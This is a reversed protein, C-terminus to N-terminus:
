NTNKNFKHNLSNIFKKDENRYYQYMKKGESIKEERIEKVDLLDIAQALSKANFEDFYIAGNKSFKSFSSPYLIPKKLYWAEFLPINAPGFISPFVIAFCNTYLFKMASLNLEEYFHFTNNLNNKNVLNKISKLYGRDNGSFVIKINKNTINKFAEIILKHNKHFLYNSPYFIFKKNKLESIEDINQAILNKSIDFYKILINEKQRNYYTHLKTKTDESEVVTFYLKKIENKLFDERRKFEKSKSYEKLNPYDLHCLDLITVVLPLKNILRSRPFFHPVYLLSCKKNLLYQEFKSVLFKSIPFYKAVRLYVKDIFSLNVFISNIKEKKLHYHVKKNTCIVDIEIYSLLNKKLFSLTSLAYYWQGGQNPVVDIYYFIKEIKNVM